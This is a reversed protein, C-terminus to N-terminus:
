WDEGTTLKLAQRIVDDDLRLGASQLSRMVDAASAILGRQKAMIVVALTGKHKISYSRACTRAARDDLIATWNQNTLAYSLVATEGHGLDWTLIEARRSTEVVSFKGTALVRRAPDNTPGAEIETVVAEPIVTEDSLQLLLDEYGARALTIVPSANPVWYESM